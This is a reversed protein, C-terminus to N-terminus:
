FPSDLANLISVVGWETAASPSIPDCTQKVREVAAIPDLGKGDIVCAVAGTGIPASMSTGDGVGFGGDRHCSEVQVGPAGVHVFDRGAGSFSAIENTDAHIAGVGLTKDHIGPFRPNRLGDNGSAAVVAIGMGHLDNLLKAFQDDHSIENGQVTSSFGCQPSLCLQDADVYQAAEDIRQKLEDRAELEPVKSSVLGLVVMKGKPTFRLPAFDGSREDDYELFYGDVDLLTFLAEAVPDYGGEAIWASQFNGRCLHISVSMDDPRSSIADNILEAYM